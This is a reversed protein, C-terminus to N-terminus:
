LRAQSEGCAAGDVVACGVVGWVGSVRSHQAVVVDAFNVKSRM